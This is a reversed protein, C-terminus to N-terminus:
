LNFLAQGAPPRFEQISTVLGCSLAENADFPPENILHYDLRDVPLNLHTALISRTRTDDIELSEAFGRLRAANATVSVTHTRHIMFTANAAAYRHKAGLFAIVAISSVSGGNYTHLEVPLGRFYNYIAIGDGVTGGSSQLLLHVAPAGANIIIAGANFIKQVLAQDITGALTAYVPSKPQPPQNM